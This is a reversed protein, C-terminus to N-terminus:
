GLVFDRVIIFTGSVSYKCHVQMKCEDESNQSNFTIKKHSSFSAQSKGPLGTTLVKGELDPHKSKMGPQLALIGCSEQGFFWLM